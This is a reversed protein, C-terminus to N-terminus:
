DQKNVVDSMPILYISLRYHIASWLNNSGYTPPSALFTKSNNVPGCEHIRVEIQSKGNNVPGCEGIRVEIQSKSNNVPGRKGIRVELHALYTVM